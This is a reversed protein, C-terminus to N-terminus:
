VCKTRPPITQLLKYRQQLMTTRVSINTNMLLKSNPLIYNRFTEHCFIKKIKIRYQFKM